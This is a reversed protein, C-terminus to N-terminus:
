ANAPAETSTADDFNKGADTQENVWSYLMTWQTETLTGNDGAPEIGASTVAAKVAANRAISPGAWDTVAQIASDRPAQDAPPETNQPKSGTAKKGNFDPRRKGPPQPEGGSGDTDPDSYIGCITSWQYRRLYTHIVGTAQPTNLGRSAEVAMEARSTVSEGTAAHVLTTEVHAVHGLTEHVTVGCTQQVYLGHKALVPRTTDIVSKLDAFKNKLHPNESNQPPHKMDAQAALLATHLNKTDSM